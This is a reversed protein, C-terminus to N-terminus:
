IGEKCAVIGELCWHLDEFTWELLEARKGLGHHIWSNTGNGLVVADLRM